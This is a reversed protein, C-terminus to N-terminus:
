SPGRENLFGEAAKLADTYSDFPHDRVPIYWTSHMRFPHVWAAAVREIRAPDIWGDPRRLRETQWALKWREVEARLDEIEAVLDSLIDESM